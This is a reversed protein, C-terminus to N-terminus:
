YQAQSPRCLWEPPDVGVLRPDEAGVHAIERGQAFPKADIHANHGRDEAGLMFVLALVPINRAAQHPVKLRDRAGADGERVRQGIGKREHHAGDVIRDRTVAEGTKALFREGTLQGKLLLGPPELGPDVVPSRLASGKLGKVRIQRRENQRGFVAGSDVIENEGPIGELIEAEPRIEIIEEPLFGISVRDGAGLRDRQGEEQSGRFGDPKREAILPDPAVIRVRHRVLGHLLAELGERGGNAM